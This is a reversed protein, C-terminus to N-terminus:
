RAPQASATLDYFLRDWYIRPELTPNKLHLELEFLAILADRYFAFGNREATPGYKEVMYPKALSSGGLSLEAGVQLHMRVQSILGFDASFEDPIRAGRWVLAEAIQWVTESRESSGIAKIDKLTIDTRDAAYCLLKNLEQELFARDPGVSQLLYSAADPSLQKQQKKAEGVLWSLLRKEREWPKEQSLDLAVMEKKGALYLPECSKGSGLVLYAFPSPRAVFKTLAELDGKKLKDVGDFFVVSPGFLGKTELLELADSFSTTKQLPYPFAAAVQEM